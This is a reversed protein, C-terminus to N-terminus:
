KYHRAYPINEPKTYLTNGDKLSVIGLKRKAYVTVAKRGIAVTALGAIAQLRQNRLSQKVVAEAYKQGKETKTQNYTKLRMSPSNNLSSYRKVDKRFTKAEETSIDEKNRGSLRALQARSRRVGWKMGKIGHHKLESM